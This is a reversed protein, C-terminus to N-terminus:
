KKLVMTCSWALWKFPSRQNLLIGDLFFLINLLKKFIKNKRFPVALLSLCFYYKIEANPFMSKILAIDKRRLPQEDMTRAKPTMKRYLKIVFNTDLPEIFFAKGGKKLIRNVEELSKKIDLHHLIAVGHIIDFSDNEFSTNMADMVSFELNEINRKKCMQRAWGILVESIDIGVGKKIKSAFNVLYYGVGCGYELLVTEDKNLNGIIVPIFEKMLLGFVSYFKSTSVRAHGGSKENYWEKERKARDLDMTNNM